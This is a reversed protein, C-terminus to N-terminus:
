KIKGEMEGYLEPLFGRLRSYEFVNHFACGRIKDLPAKEGDPLMKVPKGDIINWGQWYRSRFEVGNAMKRITHLMFLYDTRANAAANVPLECINACVLASIGGKIYLDMNFGAEEPHLFSLQINLYKDGIKEIAHHTIGMYRECMPTAANLIKKRAANDVCIGGHETPSWLMYRMDELGHWAFWWEVMEPTVEPMKIYHAVYGSGDPMQCYGLEVKQYGPKLLQNIEFISLAESPDMQGKELEQLSATEVAYKKYFYKSYPKKQEEPTLTLERM